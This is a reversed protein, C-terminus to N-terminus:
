TQGEYLNPARSRIRVLIIDEMCARNSIRLSNESIFCASTCCLYVFHRGYLLASLIFRSAAGSVDNEQLSGTCSPSASHHSTEGHSCITNTRLPLHVAAKM